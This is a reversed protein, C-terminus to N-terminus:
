PQPPDTSYHNQEVFEKGNSFRYAPDYPKRRFDEGTRADVEAVVESWLKDSVRVVTRPDQTPM